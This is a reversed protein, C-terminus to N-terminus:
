MDGGIDVKIERSDIRQSEQPTKQCKTYFDHESVESIAVRVGVTCWGVRLPGKYHFSRKELFLSWIFIAPTFDLVDWKRSQRRAESQVCVHMERMSFHNGLGVAASRCEQKWKLESQHIQGQLFLGRSVQSATETWPPSDCLLIDPSSAGMGWEADTTSRSGVSVCHSFSVTPGPPVILTLWLGGCHGLM